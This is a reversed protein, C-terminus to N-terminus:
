RAQIRIKEQEMSRCEEIESIPAIDIEWVEARRAVHRNRWEVLVKWQSPFGKLAKQRFAVV